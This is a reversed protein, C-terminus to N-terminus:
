IIWGKWAGYRSVGLPAYEEGGFNHIRLCRPDQLWGIAQGAPTATAKSPPQGNRMRLTLAFNRCGFLFDMYIYIYINHNVLNQGCVGWAPYSGLFSGPM